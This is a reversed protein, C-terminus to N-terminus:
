MKNADLLINSYISATKNETLIIVLNDKARTCATYLVNINKIYEQKLEDNGERLNSIKNDKKIFGMYKLGCIIVAKFDSGLAGNITSLTIGDRYGYSTRDVFDKPSMESYVINHKDLNIKVYEYIYYKLKKIERQYFLIAIESSPIQKENILYEVMEIAKEAEKLKSTEIIRPNDGERYAKGRLMYDTDEKM